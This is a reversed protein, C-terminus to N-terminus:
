FISNPVGLSGFTTWSLTGPLALPPNKTGLSGLTGLLAGRPGGLHGLPNCFFGFLMGSLVPLGVCAGLFDVGKKFKSKHVLATNELRGLQFDVVM